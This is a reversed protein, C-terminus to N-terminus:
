KEDPYAGKLFKAASEMYNLATTFKHNLMLVFDKRERENLSQIAHIINDLREVDIDVIAEFLQQKRENETM